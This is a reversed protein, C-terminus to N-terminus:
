PVFFREKYIEAWDEAEWNVQFADVEGMGQEDMSGGEVEGGVLVGNPDGGRGYIMGSFYQYIMRYLHQTNSQQYGFFGNMGHNANTYEFMQFPQGAKTLQEVFLATNQLHVNDDATGHIVMYSPVTLKRARTTLLTTNVYGIPNDTPRRMYRETYISDYLRWDTVPAVALVTNVKGPLPSTAIRSAMSGGYSWGWYAVKDADIFCYSQLSDIVAKLDVEEQQWLRFSTYNKRFTDGKGGTGIPDVTLAVYGKSGSMFTAFATGANGGQGYRRSVMQNGPGGYVNILVPYRYSCDPSDLTGQFTPPTIIFANLQYQPATQSSFTTFHQTPLNYTKLNALTADNNRLVSVLRPSSIASPDLQFLRTNLLSPNAQESLTFYSCNGSFSTSQWTPSPTPLVLTWNGTPVHVAILSREISSPYSATIFLLQSDAHYCHTAEVGWQDSSTIYRQFKGDEGWLGLHNYDNVIVTDMWGMLSPLYQLTFDAELYFPHSQSTLSRLPRDPNDARIGWLTWSAQVRPMVKVAVDDDGIWALNIVYQEVKEGGVDVTYGLKTVTNYMGVYVISNTDNVKPYKYQYNVNHPLDYLPFTYEPVLTENFQLFAMHRGSPSFWIVGTRSYVEEEYAWDCVGNIVRNYAGNSTVRSLTGSTLDYLYIDNAQVYAIAPATLSPSFQAYQLPLPSLTRMSPTQTRDIYGYIAQGSHRYLSQYARRFLFYSYDTSFSVLSWGTFLSAAILLEQSSQGPFGRMLGEGTTVIYSSDFPSWNLSTYGLTLGGNGNFAEAFGFLKGTPIPPGGGGSSSPTAPSGSSPSIPPSTASSFSLPPLTSSSVYEAGGGGGGNDDEPKQRSVVAILGIIFALVCFAAIFALPKKYRVFFARYRDRPTLPYFASSSTLSSDLLADNGGVNFSSYAAANGEEPYM